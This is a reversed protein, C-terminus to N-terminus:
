MISLLKYSELCVAVLDVSNNIKWQGYDILARVYCLISM